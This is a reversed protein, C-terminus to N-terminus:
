GFLHIVNFPAFSCFGSQLHLHSLCRSLRALLRRKATRDLGIRRRAPEGDGVCVAWRETDHNIPFVSDFRNSEVVNSRFHRRNASTGRRRCPHRNTSITTSSSENSSRIHQQWHSTLKYRSNRRLGLRFFLICESRCCRRPRLRAHTGFSALAATIVHFRQQRARALLRGSQEAAFVGAVRRV